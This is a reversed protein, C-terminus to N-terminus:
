QIVIKLISNKLQNNQLVAIYCGSAIKLNVFQSNKNKDIPQEFVKKGLLDYLVISNSIETQFYIREGAYFIKETGSINAEVIGSPLVTIM